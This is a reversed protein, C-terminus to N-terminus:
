LRLDNQRKCLFIKGNYHLCILFVKKENICVVVENRLLRKAENM